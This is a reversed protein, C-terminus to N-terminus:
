QGTHGGDDKVFEVLAVQMPIDRERPRQIQLLGGARVQPQDDHRGRQIQVLQFLVQSWAFDQSRFTPHKRHINAIGVSRRVSILTRNPVLGSICKSIIHSAPAFSVKQYEHWSNKFDM